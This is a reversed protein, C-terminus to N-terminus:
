PQVKESIQPKGSTVALMIGLGIAVLACIAIWVPGVGSFVGAERMAIGIGLILVFYGFLYLNIFRM